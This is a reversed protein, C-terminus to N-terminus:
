RRGIDRRLAATVPTDPDMDHVIDPDFPGSNAPLARVILKDPNSQLTAGGGGPPQVRPCRRTARGDRLAAPDRWRCSAVDNPHLRYLVTSLRIRTRCLAILAKRQFRKAACGLTARGHRAVRPARIM